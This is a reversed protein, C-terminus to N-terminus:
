FRRQRLVAKRIQSMLCAQHQQYGSLNFKDEIFDKRYTLNWKQYFHKLSALEEAESWLGRSSPLNSLGLTLKPMFTVVSQPECYITHRSNTVALSFDIEDCRNLLAENLLGIKDFLETRVLMCHFEALECEKRHLQNRITNVFQDAFYPNEYLYRKPRDGKIELIIHAEGGALHVTQHEPKGICILPAVVSAGTEESCEILQNLWAPSVIVDNDIFVIYKTSVQSLALNRAQNPYLYNDTRILHFGRVQAQAELYSLNNAPSHCDVYILKFPLETNKYISELSKCTYIFHERSGVIITVQQKM